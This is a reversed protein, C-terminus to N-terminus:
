CGALVDTERRAGEHPPITLSQAGHGVLVAIALESPVARVRTVFTAITCPGSALLIWGDPEVARLVLPAGLM